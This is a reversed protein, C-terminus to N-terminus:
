VGYGTFDAFRTIFFYALFYLTAFIVIGITANMIRKQALAIKEKNGAATMWEYGAMIIRIIFMFGLFPAIFLVGGIYKAITGATGEAGVDTKYLDANAAGSILNDEWNGLKAFAVSSFLLFFLFCLSFVIRGRFIFNKIKM